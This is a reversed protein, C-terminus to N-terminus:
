DSIEKTADEEGEKKVQNELEIQERTKFIHITGGLVNKRVPMNVINDESM